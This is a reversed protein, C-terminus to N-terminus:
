RAARAPLLADRSAALVRKALAPDDVLRALVLGGLLQAAAVLAADSPAAPRKDGEARLPEFRRILSRAAEAFARRTPAHQRPAETGAAALVCGREPHAVHGESLYTSVFSALAAQDAPADQKAATDEAARRVAETVLQERDRFHNYFGGHTLGVKKMIAPISLRELGDTRLTRAAAEVIRAHVAEKHSDPYRM